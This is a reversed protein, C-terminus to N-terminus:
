SSASEIARVSTQNSKTEKAYFEKLYVYICTDVYFSLFLLYIFYPMRVVFYLLV